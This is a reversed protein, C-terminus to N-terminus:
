ASGAWSSTWTAARTRTPEPVDYGLARYFAASRALDAAVLGIADLRVTTM